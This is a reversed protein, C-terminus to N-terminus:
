RMNRIGRGTLSEIDSFTWERLVKDALVGPWRKRMEEKGQM